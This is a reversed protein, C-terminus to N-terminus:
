IIKFICISSLKVFLFFFYVNQQNYLFSLPFLSLLPINSLRLPSLFSIQFLCVPSPLFHLLPPCSFSPLNVTSYYLLFPSLLSPPSLSIYSFCLPSFFYIQFLCFSPFATSASLFFFHSTSYQLCPQSNARKSKVRQGLIARRLSCGHTIREKVFLSTLSESTIQSRIM